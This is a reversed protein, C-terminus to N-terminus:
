TKKKQNKNTKTHQNKANKTKKMDKNKEHQQWSKAIKKVLSVPRSLVEPCSFREASIAVINREFARPKETLVKRREYRSCVCCTVPKARTGHTTLAHSEFHQSPDPRSSSGSCDAKTTATLSYGHEPSEEDSEESVSFKHSTVFLRGSSGDYLVSSPCGLQYFVHQFQNFVQPQNVARSPARLDSQRVM